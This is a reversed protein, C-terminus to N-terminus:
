PHLGFLGTIVEQNVREHERQAALVAANGNFHRLFVLKDALDQYIGDIAALREDDSARMTQDTIVLTLAELNQISEALLRDYVRRLYRLEEETLSGRASFRTFATRYERVLALQCDIIDYVRPDNKVAPNVKLLGNLFTEHLKFNGQTLDRITTYGKFLIEYGKRLEDLIQRLQNLKELNLVLQAIETEQAQVPGALAIALLLLALPKPRKKM